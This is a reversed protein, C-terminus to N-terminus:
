YMTCNSLSTDIRISVVHKKLLDSEVSCKLIVCQQEFLEIDIILDIVKTLARSKTFQTTHSTKGDM